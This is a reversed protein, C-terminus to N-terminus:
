TGNLTGCNGDYLLDVLRPALIVTQEFDTEQLVSM